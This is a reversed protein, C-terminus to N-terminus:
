RIVPAGNCKGWHQEIKKDLTKKEAFKKLSEGLRNSYQVVLQAGADYDANSEILIPLFGFSRM